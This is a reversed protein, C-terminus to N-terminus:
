QFGVQPYFLFILGNMMFVKSFYRYLIHLINGSFHDQQQNMIEQLLELLTSNFQEHYDRVQDEFDMCASTAQFRTPSDKQVEQQLEFEASHKHNEQIIM